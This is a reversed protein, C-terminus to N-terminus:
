LNTVDVRRYYVNNNAGATVFPNDAMGYRTKFGIRPQFDSEGITKMMSLPVYPCYFMGADYSNSGKYGVVIRNATGFPDVYIKMGNLTGLFLNGTVDELGTGAVNGYQVSGTANLAAAIGTGVIAFNGKGRRTDVAILNAQKEIHTIMAKYIEVEWRGDSVDVESGSTTVATAGVAADFGHGRKANTTMKHILERNIEQLIETSLINALETEASLGHVAKLDQALEQTYHAKLQRSKATVSTKDISFGMTASINGEATATAMGTGSGASGAGSFSDDAENFLAETENTGDTGDAYNSKMAFILGTPGKMPQVGAVDFALLNPTSRRVLSILIPDFNDVPGTANGGGAVMDEKLAIEQNELLVATVSKKHSDTIGGDTSLVPEWKEQLTDAQLEISM